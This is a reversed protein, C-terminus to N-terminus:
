HGALIGLQRDKLRGAGVHKNHLDLILELLSIGNGIQKKAADSINLKYEEGLNLVLKALIYRAFAKTPDGDGWFQLDLFRETKDAALVEVKPKDNVYDLYIEKM